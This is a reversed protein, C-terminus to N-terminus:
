FRDPAFTGILEWKEDDFSQFDFRLSICTGTERFSRRAEM